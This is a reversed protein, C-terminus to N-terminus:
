ERPAFIVEGEASMARTKGALIASVNQNTCGFSRAIVGVGVGNARLRHIVIVDKDTLKSGRHAEGMLLTGHIRMDASNNKHWDYRLNEARNDTKIGNNHCVVKNLPPDGIFAAAVLRHILCPERRTGKALTVYKYGNPYIVPTLIKGRKKRSRMVGDVLYDTVGDSSRVLGLNSVEYLGEWTPVPLWKEHATM